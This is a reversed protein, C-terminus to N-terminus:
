CEHHKDDCSRVLRYLSINAYMEGLKFSFMHLSLEISTINTCKLWTEM